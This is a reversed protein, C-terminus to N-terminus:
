KSMITALFRTLMNLQVAFIDHGPKLDNHLVSGRLFSLTFHMSGIKEPDDDDKINFTRQWIEACIKLTTKRHQLVKKRLGPESRSGMGIEWVALYRKPGYFTRWLEMVISHCKDELSSQDSTYAELRDCIEDRMKDLAAIILDEKAGFHHQMAGTTIGARRCIEHVTTKGYGVDCLSEIVAEILASRTEASRAENTRREGRRQSKVVSGALGSADRM